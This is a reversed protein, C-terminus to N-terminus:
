FYAAAGEVMLQRTAHIQSLKMQRQLNGLFMQGTCKEMEQTIKILPLCFIPFKVDRIYFYGIIPCSHTNYRWFFILCYFFRPGSRCPKSFVGSSPLLSSIFFLGIIVKWFHAPPSFYLGEIFLCFSVTVFLLLLFALQVYIFFNRVVLM